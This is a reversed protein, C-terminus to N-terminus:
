VLLVTYFFKSQDFVSDDAFIVSSSYFTGASEKVNEDEKKGSPRNRTTIAMQLNLDNRTEKKKTKRGRTLSAYSLQAEDVCDYHQKKKIMQM